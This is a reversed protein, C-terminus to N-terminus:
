GPHVRARWEPSGGALPTPQCVHAPVPLGDSGVHAVGAGCADAARVVYFFASGPAPRELDSTTTVTLASVLCLATTVLDSASTSRIVDYIM